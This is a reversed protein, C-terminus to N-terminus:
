QVEPPFSFVNKSGFFGPRHQCKALSSRQGRAEFNISCELIKLEKKGKVKPTSVNIFHEREKYIIFFLDLLSKKDGGWSLGVAPTFNVADIVVKSYGEVGEGLTEVV